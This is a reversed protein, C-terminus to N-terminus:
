NDNTFWSNFIQENTTSLNPFYTKSSNIFMNQENFSVLSYFFIIILFGIFFNKKNFIIQLFIIISMFIAFILFNKEFLWLPLGSKQNVGFEIYLDKPLEEFKTGPTVGSYTIKGFCTPDETVSKRFRVKTFQGENMHNKIEFYNFNCNYINPIAQNFNDILLINDEAKLHSIGYTNVLLYIYCLLPLLILILLNRVQSNNKNM